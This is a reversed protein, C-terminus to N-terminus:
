LVVIFGIGNCVGRQYSFPWQWYGCAGVRGELVAPLRGDALGWPVRERGARCGREEGLM